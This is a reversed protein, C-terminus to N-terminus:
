APDLDKRLEILEPAINKIQGAKRYFAVLREAASGCRMDNLIACPVPGSRKWLTNRLRIRLDSGHFGRGFSSAQRRLPTGSSPNDTRTAVSQIARVAFRDFANIPAMIVTLTLGMRM